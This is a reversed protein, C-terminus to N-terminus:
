YTTRLLGSVFVYVVAASVLLVLIRLTWFGTQAAASFHRQPLHRDMEVVLQDPELGQILDDDPEGEYLHRLHEPTFGPHAM